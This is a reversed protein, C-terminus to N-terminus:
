LITNLFCSLQYPAHYNSIKYEYFNMGRFKDLVYLRDGFIRIDDAFQTLPIKGLLSGKENFIELEFMDTKTVDTNGSVTVAFTRNGAGDNNVNYNQNIREKNNLQRRATLIWIRNNEDVAIGSSVLKMDPERMMVLRGGRTNSVNLNDKDPKPPTTDYNLERDIKLLLEGAPSYKDIRNQFDFAVFTNDDRDITFHFYNGRKNLM